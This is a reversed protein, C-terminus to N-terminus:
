PAAESGRMGAIVAIAAGVMAVAAFGFAAVPSVLTWLLGTVGSAILDGISQIAALLGFASGRLETPALSAVSSNQATEVAGIGVGAAIFAAGLVIVDPGAIAFTAYSLGFLAIGGLLVGRAGFTDALRGAPFSAVTAAVNYGVYLAIATVAASNAGHTPALLETARLILLTAAMNGAEFISVGALL